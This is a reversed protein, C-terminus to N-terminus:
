GDVLWNLETRLEAPDMDPSPQTLYVEWYTESPTLGQEGIWARLRGWSEGLDEYSGHHVSRAVRGAPLTGPVVPGAPEIPGATAFGVELDVTEAPAGRFKAFAPGTPPVGQGALTGGLLGFSRDFFAPLEAMPMQRGVVVATTQEPVTVLEPGTGAPGSNSTDM